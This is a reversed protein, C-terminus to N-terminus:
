AQSRLQELALRAAAQQAEKKSRGESIALARGQVRVEVVFTKRHDPGSERVVRYEAPPVGRGQLLEQLASKHDPQGLAEAQEQIAPELLSGGVFRAAPELGADFYIAAVIAEYADALLAQKERGGTKEEGPGLKLYRGLHLRRAAGHLSRASVLRAKSKSLRGESWDPFNAVLYESVILGLIADGLFELKENNEGEDGVARSPSGAAKRSLTAQTAAGHRSRQAPRLSRHTLARELWGPDQFHHGVATELETREKETMTM